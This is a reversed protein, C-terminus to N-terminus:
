FHAQDAYIIFIRTRLCSLKFLALLLATLDRLANLREPLRAGAARSGFSGPHATADQACSGCPRLHTQLRLLVFLPTWTRTLRSPNRRLRRITLLNHRHLDFNFGCDDLLRLCPQSLLRARHARDGRINGADQVSQIHLDRRRLLDSLRQLRKGASARCLLGLQLCHRLHQKGCAVAERLRVLLEAVSCSPKAFGGVGNARAERGCRQRSDRQPPDVSLFARVLQSLRKAKSGGFGQAVADLLRHDAFLLPPEGLELVIDRVKAARDFGRNRVDDARCLFAILIM